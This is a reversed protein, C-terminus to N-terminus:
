PPNSPIADRGRSFSLLNHLDESPGKTANSSTIQTESGGLERIELTLTASECWSLAQNPLIGVLVTHNM